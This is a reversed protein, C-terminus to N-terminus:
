PHFGLPYRQRTEKSVSKKIADSLDSIFSEDINLRHERHISTDFYAENINTLVEFIEDLCSEIMLVNDNESNDDLHQFIKVDSHAIIKNRIINLWKINASNLIAGEIKAVRLVPYTSTYKSITAKLGMLGNSKTDNDILLWASVAVDALLADSLYLYGSGPNMYNPNLGVQQLRALYENKQKAFCYNTYAYFFRNEIFEKVESPLATYEKKWVFGDIMKAKIDKMNELAQERTVEMDKAYM